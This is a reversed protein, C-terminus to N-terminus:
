KKHMIEVYCLHKTNYVIKRYKHYSHFCFCSTMTMLLCQMYHLTCLRINTAHKCKSIKWLLCNSLFAPLIYPTAHSTYQNLNTQVEKETLYNCSWMNLFPSHKDLTLSAEKLASLVIIKHSHCNILFFHAQRKFSLSYMKNSGFISIKRAAWMINAQPKSSFFTQYRCHHLCQWELIPSIELNPQDYSNPPHPLLHSSSDLLGRHM